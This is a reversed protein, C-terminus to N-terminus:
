KIGGVKSLKPLHKDRDSILVGRLNYGIKLGPDFFSYGISSDKDYRDDMYYLVSTNDELTIYGSACFSPVLISRSITESSGIKTRFVNMYTRSGCRADVVFFLASGSICTILKSEGLLSNQVHLGRATKAKCNFGISSQVIRFNSLDTDSYIRYFSGREDLNKDYEIIVCNDIGTKITKM